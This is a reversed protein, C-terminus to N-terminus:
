EVYECNANISFNCQQADTTIYNVGCELITLFRKNGSEFYSVFDGGQTVLIIEDFHGPNDGCPDIFDVFALDPLVADAGDAGDAGNSGAAGNLIVESTGDPCSIKAGGNFSEVSCSDAIDAEIIHRGGSCATLVIAITLLLITYILPKMNSEGEITIIIVSKNIGTM